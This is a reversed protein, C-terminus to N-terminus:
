HQHSSHHTLTKEALSKWMLAKHLLWHGMQIMTRVKTTM